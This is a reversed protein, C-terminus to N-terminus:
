YYIVEQSAKRSEDLNKFWTEIKIKAAEVSITDTLGLKNLCQPSSNFKKVLQQSTKQLELVMEPLINSNSEQHPTQSISHILNNVGKDLTGKNLNGFCASVQTAYSVLLVKSIFKNTELRRFIM